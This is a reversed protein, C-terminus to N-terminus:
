GSIERNRRYADVDNQGLVISGEANASSQSYGTSKPPAKTSAEGSQPVTESLLVRRGTSLGLFIDDWFELIDERKILRLAGAEKRLRDFQLRNTSIENWNRSAETPLKKDPEFRQLILARTYVTVQDETLPELFKKRAGNIFKLIETTITQTSVISSQCIFSINRTDAIGKVGASM